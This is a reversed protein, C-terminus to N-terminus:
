HANRKTACKYLMIRIIKGNDDGGGSQKSNLAGVNDGSGPETGDDDPRPDQGLFM